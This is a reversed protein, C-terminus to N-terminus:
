EFKSIRECHREIDKLKSILLQLEEQDCTLEEIITEKNNEHDFGKLSLKFVTDGSPITQHQIEYDVDVLNPFSSNDYRMLRIKLEDKFKEYSEILQSTTKSSIKYSDLADKLKLSDISHQAAAIIVACIGADAQKVEM